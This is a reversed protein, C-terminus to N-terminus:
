HPGHYWHQPVNLDPNSSRILLLLLLLFLFLRLFLLVLCLLLISNKHHDSDHHHCNRHLVSSITVRFIFLSYFFAAIVARAYLPTFSVSWGLVQELYIIVSSCVM